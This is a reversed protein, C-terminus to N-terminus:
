GRGLVLEVLEMRRKVYSHLFVDVMNMRMGGKKIGVWRESPGVGLFIQKERRGKM